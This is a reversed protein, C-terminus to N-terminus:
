AGTPRNRAEAGPNGTTADEGLLAAKLEDLTTAAAVAERFAVEAPDEVPAPDPSPEPDPEDVLYPLAAGEPVKHRMTAPVGRAIESAGAAAAAPAYDRPNGDAPIIYVRRM